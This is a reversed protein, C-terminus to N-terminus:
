DFLLLDKLCYPSFWIREKSKNEKGRSEGKAQNAYGGQTKWEFVSWNHKETLENHEGDYGCLAIRYLPNSGNEICWSRVDHSVNFSDHNYVGKRDASYPPDLFVGCVRKGETRWNGGLVQTWDGCVVKVDQLREQMRKLYKLPSKIALLGKNHIVNIRKCIQEAFVGDSKTIHPIQSLVEKKKHRARNDLASDSMNGGGVINDSIIGKNTKLEIAQGLGDSKKIFDLAGIWCSAVWVWFGALKSDYFDVDQILRDRMSDYNEIIYNRRAHLEIHNVPFSAYEAVTEPDKQIARYFNCINGDFDNAIENGFPPTGPRALLVAGSGFFPEVYMKVTGFRRWVESAVTRKGGFYPFPAKLDRYM